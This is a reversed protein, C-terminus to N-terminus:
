LPRGASAMPHGSFALERRRMGSPGSALPAAFLRGPNLFDAVAEWTAMIRLGCRIHSANRFSLNYEADFAHGVPVRCFLCNAWIIWPLTQGRSAFMFDSYFCAGSNTIHTARVPRVESLGSAGGTEAHGV